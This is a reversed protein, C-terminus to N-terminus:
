FYSVINKWKQEELLSITYNIRDMITQKGLLSLM